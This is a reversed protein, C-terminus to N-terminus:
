RKTRPAESEERLVLCVDHLRPIFSHGYTRRSSSAGYSFRIIEPAALRFGCITAANFVKFPIAKYNGKRCIDGILVALKGWSNLSKRCNQFVKILKDYFESDTLANSLCRPDNSYRILNWYPPHLWIFDYKPLWDFSEGKVADFGTKLDFSDCPIGLERCVDGCTGSGAMPDLVRRPRYYRMLDRILLGSCNGRYKSDGYPGRGPTSHISTLEPVHSRSQPGKMTTVDAHPKVEVLPAADAAGRTHGSAVAPVRKVAFGSRPRPRFAKSRMSAGKELDTTNRCRHFTM